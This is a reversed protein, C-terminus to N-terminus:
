AIVEGIFRGADKVRLEGAVLKPLLIDRLAALIFSEYRCGLAKKFIEGTIQEYKNAISASPIVAMIDLVAKLQARQHSKSTGTVLGQLIKRFGDERALCYIYFRSFPQKVSLVLFETSCVARETGKLDVLWVREIEPNLKSLLVVGPTLSFKLSKIDKGCEMKPQKGDDFAPISFHAYIQEPSDMPNEQERLVDVLDGFKGVNWGAPIEGLESDEFRDPFLDATEKPLGPDRGEAKARVPDFDVLWSKFTARAIGELTENMKRNLEIKDDLTGLIHAIAHQEDISDPMQVPLPHIHNRNLTPVGSGANFNALDLSKLLYYCFRIDNGKFDKVWLTTNLPWFDSRIYQGGGLSGSRGIVVGPGRVMATKHTGVPGTSAIVAYTGPLRETEPLDFGRQLTLVDGLKKEEWRNPM